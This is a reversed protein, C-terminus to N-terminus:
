QGEGLATRIATVTECPYALPHGEGDNCVLCTPWSESWTVEKHLVLVAEVATRLSAVESRECGPCDDACLPNLRSM